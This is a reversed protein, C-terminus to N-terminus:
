VVATSRDEAIAVPREPARRHLGDGPGLHCFTVAFSPFSGLAVIRWLHLLTGERRRPM